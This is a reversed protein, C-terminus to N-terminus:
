AAKKYHQLRRKRITDRKIRKRQLLITKDSTLVQSVFSAAQPVSSKQSMTVGLRSVILCRSLCAGCLASSVTLSM